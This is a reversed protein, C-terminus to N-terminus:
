SCIAVSLLPNPQGQKTKTKTATSRQRRRRRGRRLQGKKERESRGRWMKTGVRPVQSTTAWRVDLAPLFAASHGSSVFRRELSFILLFISTSNMSCCKQIKMLISDTKMTKMSIPTWLLNMSTSNLMLCMQAVLRCAAAPMPLM